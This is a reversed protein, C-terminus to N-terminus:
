VNILTKLIKKTTRYPYFFTFLPNLNGRNKDQMKEGLSLNRM